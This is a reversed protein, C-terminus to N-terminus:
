KIDELEIKGDLLDQRVVKFTDKSVRMGNKRLAEHLPYTKISKNYLAEEVLKYDETDLSDLFLRFNSPKKQPEQLAKLSESLNSM